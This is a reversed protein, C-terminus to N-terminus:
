KKGVIWWDFLIDAANSTLIKVTFGTPKKDTVILQKNSLTRPTLFVNYDTGSYDVPVTVVTLGASVTATGTTEGLVEFTKAQVTDAVITGAVTMNGQTDIVVKGDLINVGAFGNKQLYLDGGLTSIDGDMGHIALVGANINGTVGLDSVTTRGLVMLDGSVTATNLEVNGAQLANRLMAPLGLDLAASTSAGLVQGNVIDLLFASASAQQDAKESLLRVQSELDSVKNNLSNFVPDNALIYEVSASPPTAGAQLAIQGASVSAVYDNLSQGAISLSNTDINQANIGGAKLNAAAIESFAGVNDITKGFPDKLVFQPVGQLTEGQSAISYDGTSTLYANPDYWGSQAYVKIKGVNASNYSDLAHGLINGTSTAKVAVGLLDSFTLADGAKIEGNANSVFVPLQGVIGVTVYNPDDEHQSNGIFGYSSSVIGAISNDSSSCKTVGGSQALCVLTGVPMDENVNDKRFWEAYDGGATDFVVGGSDNGRVKGVIMSDGRMFNIFRDPSGAQASANAAGLRINLGTHCSTGPTCGGTGTINAYTNEIM